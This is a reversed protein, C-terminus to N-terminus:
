ACGNRVADMDWAKETPCSVVGRRRTTGPSMARNAQRTDAPPGGLRIIITSRNSTQPSARGLRLSLVAPHRCSSIGSAFDGYSLRISCLIGLQALQCHNSHATQTVTPQLLEM